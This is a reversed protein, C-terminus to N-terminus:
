PFTGGSALAGGAGTLDRSNGSRDTLTAAGSEWRLSWDAWATSDAETLNSLDLIHANTPTGTTEEVRASTIYADNGDGGNIQV